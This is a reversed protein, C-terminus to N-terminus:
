FNFFFRFILLVDLRRVIRISFFVNLKVLKGVMSLGVEYICIEEFM